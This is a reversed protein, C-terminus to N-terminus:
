RRDRVRCQRCVGCALLESVPLEALHCVGDLEEGFRAEAGLLDARQDGGAALARRVAPAPGEPGEGDSGHAGLRVARAYM